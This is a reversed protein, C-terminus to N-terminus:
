DLVGIRIDPALLAASLNYPIPTLFIFIRLVGLLLLTHKRGIKLSLDLQAFAAAVLGFAVLLLGFWTPPQYHINAPVYIESLPYWALALLIVTLWIMPM